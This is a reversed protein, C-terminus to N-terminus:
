LRLLPAQLLNLGVLVSLFPSSVVAVINQFASLLHLFPLHNSCNWSFSIILWYTPFVFFFLEKELAGRLSLSQWCCCTSHTALPFTSVFAPISISLNHLFCNLEWTWGELHCDRGQGLLLSSTEGWFLISSHQRLFSWHWTKLRFVPPSFSIQPIFTSLGSVREGVPEWTYGRWAPSVEEQPILSESMLPQRIIPGLWYPRCGYYTFLWCNSPIGTPIM